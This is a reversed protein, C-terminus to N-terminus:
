LIEKYYYGRTIEGKDIEEIGYKVSEIVKNIDISGDYDIRGYDSGTKKVEYMRDAMYLHVPNYITTIGRNRSMSILYGKRDKLVYRDYMDCSSCKSTDRCNKMHALPCNRITMLPLNSYVICETKMVTGKNIEDIDELSAEVSHTFCKVGEAKLFDASYQNMINMEFDCYINKEGLSKAFALGDINDVQIGIISDNFKKYTREAEAYDYTKSVNRFSLVIEADDNKESICDVMEESIFYYPIYVLDIENFKISEYDRDSNMNLSYRMDNDREFAEREGIELSVEKKDHELIKEELSEIAKRRMSNLVSKSVFVNGVLDINADKVAFVTGGTKSLQNIVYEVEAPANKAGEVVDDSYVETKHEGSVARLFIREGERIRVDFDLPRLHYIDDNKIRISVEDSLKKNFTKYIVDGIEMKQKAKIYVLEGANAEKISKGKQVLREIIFGKNRENRGYTIGDGVSVDDVLQVGASNGNINKVTGLLSGTNKPSDYAMLDKGFDGFLLGKTFGRSFVQEVQKKVNEDYIGDLLQRYYTVIRDVYEPKRMRGEIKFTDIGIDALKQIKSGINFEKLSLPYVPRDNAKLGTEKDIIDFSLRCTQACRGRNGSRGGFYASIYCQGSYSCCLAGHIFVELSKDSKERILKLREFPTERALINKKIHYKDLLEIGFYDCITMQTSGHINLGPIHKDILMMLGWDQVIVADVNISNLYNAYELAEMIEKEKVLTNLTVYVKVGALHAYKILDELDNDTFNDAFNRANFVKGGLYVADAGAKVAAYFSESNGAPALLEHKKM